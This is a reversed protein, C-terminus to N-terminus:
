SNNKKALEKEEGALGDIDYAFCLNTITRGGISVTGEHDELSTSSPPHSCVDRDPELRRGSGTEYAATSFSQVPPRTMSTSSSESLTPSSTEIKMAAWLAALWVREFVNKLEIAIILCNESSACQIVSVNKGKKKKKQVSDFRLRKFM